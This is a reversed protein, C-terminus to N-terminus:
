RNAIQDSLYRRGGGAGAYFCALNLKFVLPALSGLRGSFKEVGGIKSYRGSFVFDLFSRAIEPRTVFFPLVVQRRSGARVTVRRTPMCDQLLSSLQGEAVQRNKLEELLVLSRSQQKLASSAMVLTSSSSFRIFKLCSVRYMACEGRREARDLWASGHLQGQSCIRGLRLESAGGGVMSGVLPGLYSPMVFCLLNGCILGVFEFVTGLSTVVFSLLVVCLLMVTTTIFRLRSEAKDCTPPKGHYILLEVSRRSPHITLPLSFSVSLAAAVYAIKIPVDSVPMSTLFNAGVDEGYTMYPLIM